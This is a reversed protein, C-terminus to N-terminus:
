FCQLAAAVGFQQMTKKQENLIKFLVFSYRNLHARDAATESCVAVYLLWSQWSGRKLQLAARGTQLKLIFTFEPCGRRFEWGVGMISGCCLSAPHMQPRWEM